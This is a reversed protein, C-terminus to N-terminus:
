GVLEIKGKPVHANDKMLGTNLQSAHTIQSRMWKTRTLSSIDVCRKWWFMRSHKPILNSDSSTRTRYGYVGAEQWCSRWHSVKVLEGAEIEPVTWVLIYGIGRFCGSESADAGKHQVSDRNVLSAKWLSVVMEPTSCGSCSRLCSTQFWLGMVISSM